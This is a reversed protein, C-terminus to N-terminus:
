LRNDPITLTGVKVKNWVDRYLKYDHHSLEREYAEGSVAADEPQCNREICFYEAYKEATGIKEMARRIDEESIQLTAKQQDTLELYYLEAKDEVVAMQEPTLVVGDRVAMQYFIEDHIVTNVIGEKVMQNVFRRNVRARWYREPEGPDYQVAQEQVTTETDLIWFAMDQLTVPQGDVEIITDQLHEEVAFRSKQSSYFAHVGVLATVLLIVGIVIKADRDIKKM